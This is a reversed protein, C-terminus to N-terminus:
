SLIPATPPQSPQDLVRLTVGDGQLYRAESLCDERAGKTGKMARTGCEPPPWIRELPHQLLHENTFSPWRRVRIRLWGSM